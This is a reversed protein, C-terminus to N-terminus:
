AGYLSCTFRELAREIWRYATTKEIAMEECLDDVQVEPELFVRLIKRDMETLASLAGEMNKVWRQTDALRVMLEQRLVISNLLRDEPQEAEEVVRVNNCSLARISRALEELRDIEEPLETLSHKRLGYARLQEKAENKWNM